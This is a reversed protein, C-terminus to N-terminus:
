TCTRAFALTWIHRGDPTAAVGVGIANWGRGLMIARHGPSDLFQRVIAGTAAPGGVNNWGINEGGARWCYHRRTLEDFVTTGDPPIAHSFYGRTAMDASRWRAIRVLRPDSRLAPEDAAARARNELVLVERESEAAFAQDPSAAATRGPVAGLAVLTLLAVLLRGARSVVPMGPAARRPTARSQPSLPPGSVSRMRGGGSRRDM